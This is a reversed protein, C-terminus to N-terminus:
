VDAPFLDDHRARRAEEVQELARNRPGTEQSAHDWGRAARIQSAYRRAVDDAEEATIKRARLEAIPIFSAPLSARPPTGQLPAAAQQPPGATCQRAYHGAQGCQFCVTYDNM